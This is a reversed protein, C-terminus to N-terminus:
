HTKSSQFISLIFILLSQEIPLDFVFRCRANIRDVHDHRAATVTFFAPFSNNEEADHRIVRVHQGKERSRTM